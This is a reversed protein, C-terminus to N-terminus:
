TGFVYVLVLILLFAGLTGAASLTGTAYPRDSARSIATLAQGLMELGRDMATKFAAYAHMLTRGVFRALRTAPGRYFADVDLLDNPRKHAALGTLMLAGYGAAAAALLELRPGARDLAFVDVLLPSPPAMDLLWSPALGVAGCFFSALAMGLLLHFPAEASPLARIRGFFLSAPIRVATLAVAGASAALLAIWANMWGEGQVAEQALGESVFVAFGPAGAAALAGAFCFLATLPMARALGGLQSARATGTRLLVAGVALFLIAYAFATTFAHAAAGALGLRGGAGLAAVALGIQALLSYALARRLDDEALAYLAGGIAMAAGVPVLMAEGGYGRALAYVALKASFMSIAVAGVPSASSIADKLWVHALPAGVKIGLGALFFAGGVSDAALQDFKPGFGDALHFAVGCLLLLGGFGQWILLRVGAGLASKGGAALVIWAGALASLEGAAIFSILDGAFVATTAGGAMFLMAADEYRHRRAGSALAVLIAGFAFALGFIQSLEDLRFQVVELGIQSFGRYDGFPKWLILALCAIPSILMIPGRFAKPSAFALLAGIILAFGPNPSITLM